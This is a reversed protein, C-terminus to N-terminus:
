FQMSGKSGDNSMQYKIDSMRDVHNLIQGIRTKDVGAKELISQLEKKARNYETQYSAEKLLEEKVIQLLQTKTIKM